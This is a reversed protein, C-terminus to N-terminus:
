AVRQQAPAEESLQERMGTLRAVLQDIDEELNLAVAVARARVLASEARGFELLVSERAQSPDARLQAVSVYGQQKGSASPDRVYMPAQITVHETVIKVKVSHIIARAQDLRHKAAAKADDWEFMAHLPSEASAADDVLVNPTLQGRENELWAIRQKVAETIKIESM